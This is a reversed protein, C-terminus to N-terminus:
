SISLEVDSLMLDLLAAARNDSNGFPARSQKGKICIVKTTGTFEVGSVASKVKNMKTECSHGLRRHWLQRNVAVLATDTRDTSCSLKYLDNM